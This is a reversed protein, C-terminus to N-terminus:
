IVRGSIYFVKPYALFIESFFEFIKIVQALFFIQKPFKWFKRTLCAIYQKELRLLRHLRNFKKQCSTIYIISKKEM